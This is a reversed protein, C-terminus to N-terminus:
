MATHALPARAREAERVSGLQEFVGLAAALEREAPERELPLLVEGLLLRSWAEEWPAELERFGDASGRLLAAAAEGDGAAAAARGELRDAYLPLALLEGAAAEERAASTLGPAEDWAGRAATVECLAQYTLGAGGSRPRLPLVGVAEEFRGRRALVVALLPTALTPGQSWLRPRSAFYRLLLDVYSDAREEDGRLVHCLASQTYARMSFSPPLEREDFASVREIESQDIGGDVAVFARIADAM